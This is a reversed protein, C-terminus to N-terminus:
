HPLDNTDLRPLLLADDNRLNAVRPETTVASTAGLAAATARVATNVGGFPYCLCWKETPVGCNEMISLSHKLEYQLRDPSLDTMWDHSHGHVGISMGNHAMEAIEDRNMYLAHSFEAEDKTVSQAFLEDTLQQRAISPLGRQLMNKVFMAHPDDFRTLLASYIEEPAICTRLFQIKNVNLVVPSELVSTAPFFVASWDRARLRPFVVEYHERYGDDFTLLVPNEPLIDEGHLAAHMQDLGVVNCTSAIADFQRDIEAITRVPLRDFPTGAVDRVFHYMVITLNQSLRSM